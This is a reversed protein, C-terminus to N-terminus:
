DKDRQSFRDTKRAENQSILSMLAQAYLQERKELLQFNQTFVSSEVLCAYLMVQPAYTTLWNTQHEEDIPFPTGLYAIEAPYAVNPTPAILWQNFGYDCYFQPFGTVTPDPFNQRLTEYSVYQLPNWSNSVTETLPNGAISFAITMRWLAPKEIIAVGPTLNDAPTVYQELGLNGAHSNALDKSIRDIALGIFEPIADVFETNTRNNYRQISQVLSTYNQVYAM